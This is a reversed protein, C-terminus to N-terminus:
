SDLPSDIFLGRLLSRPRIGYKEGISRCGVVQAVRGVAPCEVAVRCEVEALTAEGRGVAVPGPPQNPNRLIQRAPVLDTEEVRM